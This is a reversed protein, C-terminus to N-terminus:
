EQEQILPPATRLKASKRATFGMPGPDSVGPAEMARVVDLDFGWFIADGKFDDLVNKIEKGIGKERIDGLYHITSGIEELYKIYTPSNAFSNTGIEHFNNPNILKEELLQRYPTGSNRIEQSRVDLHKDINFALVEESNLALAKCDPYSIDNGGGLVIVKKGDSVFEEVAKQLSEHIEELSGTVVVDGADFLKVNRHSESLPYKYLAKRIEYPADKAGARGMNRKIGEDQPCGVLVVECGAYSENKHLVIDGLRLDNEDNRSYFLLVDPSILNLVRTIHEKSDM